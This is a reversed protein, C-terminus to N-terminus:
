SKRFVIQSRGRRFIVSCRYFDFKARYLKLGPQETKEKRETENVAQSAKGKYSPCNKKERLVGLSKALAETESSSSYTFVKM